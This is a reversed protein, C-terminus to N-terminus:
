TRPTSESLVTDLIRLIPGRMITTLASAKEKLADIKEPTGTLIYLRALLEFSSSIDTGTEMAYELVTVAAFHENAQHLLVAWKQLTRALATYNQDYETLLPLNAVGYRLKLDTNIIGSFNVIPLEAMDYLQKQIKQVETNTALLSFPLHEFPIKVFILDDLNKRITANARREKDWFKQKLNSEKAGRQKMLVTTWLIFFILSAFFSFNM